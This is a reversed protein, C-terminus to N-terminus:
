SQYTSKHRGAQIPKYEKLVTGILYHSGCVLVAGRAGASSQAMRLARTADPEVQVIDFCPELCRQLSLADIARPSGPQTVVVNRTLDSLARGIGPSLKGELLGIM